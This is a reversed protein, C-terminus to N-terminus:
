FVQLMRRFCKYFCRFISSFAMAFYICCESLVCAVNLYVCKCCVDPFVVLVNPVYFDCYICCGSRNKCCGCSIIVVNLHFMHFVQFMSKYCVNRAHLTVKSSPRIVSSSAAAACPARWHAEPRPSVRHGPHAGTRPARAGRPLCKSRPGPWRVRLVTSSPSPAVPSPQPLARSHGPLTPPRASHRPSPRV